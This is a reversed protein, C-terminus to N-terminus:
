KLCQKRGGKFISSRFAVNKFHQKNLRRRLAPNGRFQGSGDEGHSAKSCSDARFKEYSISALALAQQKLQKPVSSDEKSNPRFQFILGERRNEKTPQLVSISEKLRDGFVRPIRSSFIFCELRHIELILRSMRRSEGDAQLQQIDQVTLGIVLNMLVISVILAFAVFLIHGVFSGKVEEPTYTYFMTNYDLEGTMMVLTKFFSSHARRFARRTPFVICFALAFAILLSIFTLILFGFTRLVVGFM